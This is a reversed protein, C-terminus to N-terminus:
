SGDGGEDPPVRETRSFVISAFVSLVLVIGAVYYLRPCAGCGCIGLCVNKITGPEPLRKIVEAAVLVLVALTTMALPVVKDAKGGLQGRDSM